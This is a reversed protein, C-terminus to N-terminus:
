VDRALWPRIMRPTDTRHQTSVTPTEVVTQAILVSLLELREDRPQQVSRVVTLVFSTSIERAVPRDTYSSRSPEISGPKLLM